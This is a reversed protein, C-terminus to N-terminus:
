LFFSDGRAIRVIIRNRYAHHKFREVRTSTHILAGM